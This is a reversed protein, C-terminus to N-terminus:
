RGVEAGWFPDKKFNSESHGTMASLSFRDDGEFFKLQVVLQHLLCGVEWPVTITVSFIGGFTVHVCTAIM